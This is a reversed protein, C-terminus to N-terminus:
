SRKPRWFSTQLLFIQEAPM